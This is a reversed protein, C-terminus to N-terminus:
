QAILRGVAEAANNYYKVAPHQDGYKKEVREATQLYKFQLKLLYKM